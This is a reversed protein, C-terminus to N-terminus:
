TLAQFRSHLEGVFMMMKISMSALGRNFCQIYILQRLKFFFSVYDNM